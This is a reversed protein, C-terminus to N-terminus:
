LKAEMRELIQELDPRLAFLPKQNEAQAAFMARADCEFFSRIIQGTKGSREQQAFLSLVEGCVLARPEAPFHPAAAIQLASIARRAFGPADGGAEARRLARRERRLARRARRRRVLEPHSELFRRRRDWWWLALLVLAPALQAPFFWPRMQLPVLSAVSNGPSEALPSLALKPQSRTQDARTAPQWDTPLGEATVKVDLPQISLDSYAATEPNFICFPITPTRHVEETLPILTYAFAAIQNTIPVASPPPAVPIAPIIQWSESQPPAPPVLRGLRGDSRFTVVLRVADGLHLFNTSLLTRDLSVNGIFGTFGNTADIPPLPRVHFTVPDSDLLVHQPLAGLIVAPRGLGAPGMFQTSATFAQAVLTLRGPAFPTVSAETVWTTVKRGNFEMPEIKHRTFTKEELFGEGNLQVQTLTEVVNSASGPLLVRLTVSEGVFLNTQSPMLLLERARAHGPELNDRVELYAAPVRVPQGYVELNFAPVTYFGPQMARAHFNIATGPRFGGGGPEVFEGRSTLTMELGLPLEIQQFFHVSRELANLTIRYIAKEGVGVVRPDFEAKAAVPSNIDVSPQSTMLRMLPNPPAPNTQALLLLPVFCYVCTILAMRSLLLM